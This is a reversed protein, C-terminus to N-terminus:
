RNFTDFVQQGLTRAPTDERSGGERDYDDDEEYEEDVDGTLPQNPNSRANTNTNADRAGTSLSSGNNTVNSNNVIPISTQEKTLKHYLPDIFNLSSDTFPLLEHFYLYGIFYGISCLIFSSIGEDILLLLFGLYGLFKDNIDVCMTEGFPRFNAFNSFDLRAVYINPIFKNYAFYFGFLIGFPGSPIFLDWEFVKYFTFSILFIAILNYIYLLIIVKFIKLSGLVRELGKLKMMILVCALAIESQNQFQLQIILFRWYQSWKSIFPDYALMFYPKGNLISVCLPTAIVAVSSWVAIPLQKFGPPLASTM